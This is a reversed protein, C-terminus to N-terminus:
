VVLYVARGERFLLIVSRLVSPKGRFIYTYGIRLKGGIRVLITQGRIMVSTSATPSPNTPEYLSKEQLTKFFEFRETFIQNEM